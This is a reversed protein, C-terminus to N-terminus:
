ELLGFPELDGLDLPAAALVVLGLGAATQKTADMNADTDCAM